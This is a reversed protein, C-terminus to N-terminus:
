GDSQLAGIFSKACRDLRDFASEFARLPQMWPDAIARTAARDPDLDGAVLIRAASVPFRERIMRSQAPDMVIILDAARVSDPAILRSRFSRLDLGRPASAVLSLAPVPRHAGVFGASRVSIDPAARQVIAQFYPSRCINGYCVVLVTRPRRMRSVRRIAAAHRRRHMVRDPFNRLAHYRRKLFARLRPMYGAAHTAGLAAFEAAPQVENV